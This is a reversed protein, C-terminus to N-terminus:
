KVTVRGAGAAREFAELDAPEVGATGGSLEVAAARREGSAKMGEGRMARGPPLVVPARQLRAEAAASDRLHDDRWDMSTSDLIKGLRMGREVFADAQQAKVRRALLEVQEILATVRGNLEELDGAGRGTDAEVEVEAREMEMETSRREILQTAADRGASRGAEVGIEPPAGRAAALAAVGRMAPDNTLAVPGLGAVGGRSEDSWYIVPSFYRYEGARLLERARETWTVDVAWLGDDRVELGGIWGAAPRLGDPRTNLDGFSQHEYDIALKRGLAHFWARLAEAHARTFEFDDGAVPRDLRVLGFPILLWESVPEKGASLVACTIRSARGAGGAAPATASREDPHALMWADLRAHGDLLADSLRRLDDRRGAEAVVLARRLPQVIGRLGATALGSGRRRAARVCGRRLAAASPRPGRRGHGPRRLPAGDGHGGTLMGGRRAAAVRGNRASPAVSTINHM